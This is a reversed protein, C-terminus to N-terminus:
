PSSTCSARARTGRGRRSLGPARRKHDVTTRLGENVGILGHRRWGIRALWTRAAVVPTGEAVGGASKWGNFWRASSCPDLGHAGPIHKRWNALVYVLANRVERPTRLARAHYRDAWVRGRRGLFRNVAKALRIALGQLGRRLGAHDDAEALLHVHDTQVSWQLLRFRPRSAAALATQVVRFM